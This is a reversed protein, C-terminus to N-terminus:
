FDLAQGSDFATKFENFSPLPNNKIQELIGTMAMQAFEVNGSELASDLVKFMQSYVGARERYNMELNSIFADRDARISEVLVDRKASIEHRNTKEREKTEQWQNFHTAINNLAEVPNVSNLVQKSGKVALEKVVLNALDKAM